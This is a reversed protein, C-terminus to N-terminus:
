FGIRRNDAREIREQDCHASLEAYDPKARGHLIADINYHRAINEIQGGSFDYREALAVADARDLDPLMACWIAARSEASPKDFHIKYLFRREFAKDMNQALNTTAILIGDLTEM